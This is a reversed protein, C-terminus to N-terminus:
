TAPRREGVPSSGTAVSHRQKLTQLGVLDDPAADPVDADFRGLRPIRLGSATLAAIALGVVIYVLGIGRGSGVGIVQGVPGALAGGPALLPEFARSALPALVLFGLPLTSWAIVSVATGTCTGTLVASEAPSLLALRSVPVSPEAVAARLLVEFREALRGITVPEFLATNYTFMCALDSGTAV